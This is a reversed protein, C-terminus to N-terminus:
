LTYYETTTEHGGAIESVSAPNDRGVDQLAMKRRGLIIIEEASLKKTYGREAYHDACDPDLTMTGVKLTSGNPRLLTMTVNVGQGYIHGKGISIDCLECKVHEESAVDCVPCFALSSSSREDFHQADVDLKYRSRGRM